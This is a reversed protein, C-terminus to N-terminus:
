SPTDDRFGGPFPGLASCASSGGQSGPATHPFPHWGRRSSVNKQGFAFLLSRLNMNLEWLNEGESCIACM